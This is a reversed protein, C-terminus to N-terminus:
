YKTVWAGKKNLLRNLVKQKFIQARLKNRRAESRRREELQKETIEPLNKYMKASRERAERLSVCRKRPKFLRDFRPDFCADKKRDSEAPEWFLEGRENARVNEIRREEARLKVFKKREEINSITRRKQREFADQLSGKQNIKLSRRLKNLLEIDEYGSLNTKKSESLTKRKPSKASEAAIFWAQSPHRKFTAPQDITWATSSRYKTSHHKVKSKSSTIITKEPVSIFPRDNSSSYKWISDISSTHNNTFNEKNEEIKSKSRVPSTQVSKETVTQVAKENLSIPSPVNIGVDRKSKLSNSKKNSTSSSTSSKKNSKKSYDVQKLRLTTPAPMVPKRNATIPRKAPSKAPPHRSPIREYRTDQKQKRDSLDSDDVMTSSDTTRMASDTSVTTSEDKEVVEAAMKELKSIKEKRKQEMYKGRLLKEKQRRIKSHLKLLKPDDPLNKQRESSHTISSELTTDEPISTLTSGSDQSVQTNCYIDVRRKSNHGGPNLIIEVESRESQESSESHREAGVGVNKVDELRRLLDQEDLSLTTSQYNSRNTNREEHQKTQNQEQSYRSHSPSKNGFELVSRSQNLLRILRETTPSYIEEDQKSLMDDVKNSVDLATAVAKRAREATESDPRSSVSRQFNLNSPLDRYQHTWSM